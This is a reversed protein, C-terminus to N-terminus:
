LLETATAYMESFTPLSEYLLSCERAACLSAIIQINLCPQPMKRYHFLKTHALLPLLLSNTPIFDFPNHKTLHQGIKKYRQVFFSASRDFGKVM